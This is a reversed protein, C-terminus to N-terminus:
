LKTMENIRKIEERVEPDKRLERILEVATMSKYDIETKGVEEGVQEIIQKEM